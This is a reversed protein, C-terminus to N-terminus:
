RSSRCVPIMNRGEERHAFLDKLKPKTAEPRTENRNPEAATPSPSPSISPSDMEEGMPPHSLVSRPVVEFDDDGEMGQPIARPEDMEVDSLTEKGGWDDDNNGFLSQLLGLSANKEQLLENDFPSPIVVPKTPLEVPKSSTSPKPIEAAISPPSRPQPPEGDESEDDSSSESGSPSHASRQPSKVQRSVPEPYAVVANLFAGKLHKSNWKTPDITRRRARIPPEKPKRKKEKAASGKVRSSSVDELPDPLPHLPRMRVPRVMRGSPTVKWGGHSKVNEPTVLSM